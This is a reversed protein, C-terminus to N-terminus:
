NWERKGCNLRFHPRALSPIAWPQHVSSSPFWAASLTSPIRDSVTGDWRYSQHLWSYPSYCAPLPSFYPLWESRNNDREAKVVAVSIAPEARATWWNASTWCSCLAPLLRTQGIAAASASYCRSKSAAVVAALWLFLPFATRNQGRMTAM